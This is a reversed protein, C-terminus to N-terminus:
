MWSVATFYPTTQPAAAGCAVMPAADLIKRTRMLTMHNSDFKRLMKAGEGVNSTFDFKLDFIRDRLPGDKVRKFSAIGHQAARDAVVASQLPSREQTEEGAFFIKRM